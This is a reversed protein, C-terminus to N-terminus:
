SHKAKIAVAVAFCEQLAPSEQNYKFSLSFFLTIIYIEKSNQSSIVSVYTVPQNNILSPNVAIDKIRKCVVKSKICYIYYFIAADLESAFHVM